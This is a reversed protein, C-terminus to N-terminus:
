LISSALQHQYILVVEKGMRAEKKKKKGQKKYFLGGEKGLCAFWNEFGETGFPSCVFM